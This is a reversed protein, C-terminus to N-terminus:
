VPRYLSSCRRKSAQLQCCLPARQRRGNPPAAATPPLPPPAAAEGQLDVELRVRNTQPYAKIIDDVRKVYRGSGTERGFDQDLFETFDRKLELRLESQEDM